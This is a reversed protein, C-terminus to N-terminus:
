GQDSSCSSRQAATWLARGHGPRSWCPWFVNRFENKSQTLLSSKFTQRAERRFSSIPAERQDRWQGTEVESADQHDNISRRLRWWRKPLKEVNRGDWYSAGQAENKCGQKRNSFEFRCKAQKARWERCLNIDCDLQFNSKQVTLVANLLMRGSIRWNQHDKSSVLESKM